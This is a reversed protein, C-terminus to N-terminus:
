RLQFRYLPASAGESVAHLAAGGADFALAEAIFAYDEVLLCPPAALAAELTTGPGRLYVRVHSYTRIAIRTGDPSVDGATALRSGEAFDVTGAHELVRAPGPAFPADGRYLASPESDRKTLVYLDGSRPDVMLTEADHAGDPYTFVLSEFADLVVAGTGADADVTPEPVRHITISARSAGNDGIDGLYLADDGPTAGPGLAVDEWDVATAGGLAFEGLKAGSADIAFFRAGDGSDNHVYLVGPQSRSAVMGSAEAIAPDALMGTQQLDELEPCRLGADRGRAPSDGCAGVLMLLWPVSCAARTARM